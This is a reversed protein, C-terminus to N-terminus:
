ETIVPTFLAATKNRDKGAARLADEFCEQCYISKTRMQYAQVRNILYKGCKTCKMM